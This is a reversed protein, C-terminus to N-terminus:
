REFAAPQARQCLTSDNEMGLVAVQTPVRIGSDKCAELVELAVSDKTAMLGIPKPLAAVWAAITKWVSPWDLNRDDIQYILCPYGAKRLTEM